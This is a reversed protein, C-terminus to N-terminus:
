IFNRILWDFFFETSRAKQGDPLLPCCNEDLWDELMKYDVVESAPSCFCVLISNAEENPRKKQGLQACGYGSYTVLKDWALQIEVPRGELEGLTKRVMSLEEEPWGARRNPERGWGGSMTAHRDWLVTQWHRKQWM